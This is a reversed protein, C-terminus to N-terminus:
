TNDMETAGDAVDKKRLPAPFDPRLLPAEEEVEGQDEFLQDTKRIVIPIEIVNSIRCKIKM